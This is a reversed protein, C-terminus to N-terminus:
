SYSDRVTRSKIVKSSTRDTATLGHRLQTPRDPPALPSDALVRDASSSRRAALPVAIISGRAFITSLALGVLDHLPGIGFAAVAL